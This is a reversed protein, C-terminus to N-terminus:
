FATIKRSQARHERYAQLGEWCSLYDHGARANAEAIQHMLGFHRVLERWAFFISHGPDYIHTPESSSGNVEVLKFALGNELDQWNDYMIDLRGFYFGPIKQCIGDILVVLRDSSQHSADTFKAGRAHNGYPVVDFGEGKGPVVPLIQPAQRAVAALQMEHRPDKMLLQAVTSRGDGTVRLFEKAVIGTIRGRREGPMRVYFIGVENRYPILEQLLFDFKARNAYDELDQLSELRKVASGRLGIDPKAIMPFGIGSNRARQYASKVDTGEHVVITKPTVETPMIRYIDMKSEAMFGGNKIGPNAANFFFPTRAKASLWIWYFGVPMYIAWAPWYEWHTLRHWVLKM